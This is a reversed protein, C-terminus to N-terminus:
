KLSQRDQQADSATAGVRHAMMWRVLQDGRRRRRQRLQGFLLALGM